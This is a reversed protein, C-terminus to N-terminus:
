RLEKKEAKGLEAYKEKLNKKYESLEKESQKKAADAEMKAIADNLEAEKKLLADNMKEAADIAVFKITKFNGEMEAKASESLDSVASLVIGKNKVFGIALGKYVFEGTEEAWKSPSNEDFNEAARMKNMAAQAVQGAADTVM